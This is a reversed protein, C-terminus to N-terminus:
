QAYKPPVIMKKREQPTLTYNEEPRYFDWKQASRQKEVIKILSFSEIVTKKM